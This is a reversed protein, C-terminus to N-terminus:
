NERRIADMLIAGEKAVYGFAVVECGDKTTTHTAVITLRDKGKTAEFSKVIMDMFESIDDTENQATAKVVYYM